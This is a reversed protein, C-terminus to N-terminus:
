SREENEGHRSERGLNDSAPWAASAGRARDTLGSRRSWRSCRASQDPREKATASLGTFTQTARFRVRHLTRGEPLEMESCGALTAARVPRLHQRRARCESQAALKLSESTRNRPIAATVGAM